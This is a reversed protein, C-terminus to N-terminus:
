NFSDEPNMVHNGTLQSEAYANPNAYKYAMRPQMMHKLGRSKGQLEAVADQKKQLTRQLDKVIRAEEAELQKIRAENALRERNNQAAVGNNQNTVNLNYNHQTKRFKEEKALRLSM